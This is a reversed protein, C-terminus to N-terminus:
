TRACRVGPRLATPSVAALPPVSLLALALRRRLPGARGLAAAGAAATVFLVPALASRYRIEVHFVGALLFVYCGLWALLLSRTPSAPGCAMFCLTLASALLLLGDDFVIAAAHRWAPQPFDERLLLHLGELRVLHGLNDGLKVLWAGPNAAVTQLLWAAGVRPVERRGEPTQGERLYVNDQWLNFSGVDDILAPRRTLWANRATWPLIAAGAGALVLLGCLVAGRGRAVLWRWLAALPVFALSVSRTLASLGLLFGGLADWGRSSDRAGRALLYLAGVLLPVHLNESFTTTSLQVAPWYVAQALGAVVGIRGALGRALAAVGLASLAGLVCNAIQLPLLREGGLMFGLAAFLTYLPPRTWRGVWHRWDDSRLVYGLPDEHRAIRLGGFLYHYQDAYLLPERLLLLYALRM